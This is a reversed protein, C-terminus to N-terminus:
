EILCEVQAEENRRGCLDQDSEGSARSVPPV